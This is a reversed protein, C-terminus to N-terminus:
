WTCWNHDRNELTTKRRSRPLAACLCRSGVSVQLREPLVEGVSAHHRWASATRCCDEYSAYREPSDGTAASRHTASLWICNHLSSHLFTKLFCHHPTPQFPGTMHCSHSIFLPLSILHGTSLFPSLFVIIRHSAQTLISRYLNLPSHLVIPFSLLLQLSNISLTALSLYPFFLRLFSSSLLQVIFCFM